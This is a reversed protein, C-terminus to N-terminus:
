SGKVKEWGRSKASREVADLVAQVKVGDRFNPTPMRDKELCTLFDHIAHVFTHEYGVIHGPPWWAGVYPHAAETALITKYGQEAGAETRDFFELENMREFNWALSGKSGYIQLTNYNRRGGAFRTSEFVGASGNKFRALFNTEDDVTVKGKGRGGKAGWAGPGADVLPREKIFTTMFGVVETIDANLFQALDAAHAGIDGLAGSGAYKKELRWVLPFQPDMIWDQLYAGHYHYIEGLRGDAILQKALAVAPVRRYNFNVYHKVGAKEVARLMEKAEALTNALPKECILHKGAEAAAIAMPHHLFGPTSIDVVDIDKREVVRRWDPDSEEWGFQRATAELEEKSAKGCIVKLRPELKGPFFKSVQRYANSHAKGMFQHGILAVNIETM